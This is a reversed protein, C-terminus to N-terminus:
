VLPSTSQSSSSLSPYQTYLAFASETRTHSADELGHTEYLNVRSNTIFNIQLKISLPPPFSLALSITLVTRAGAPWQM